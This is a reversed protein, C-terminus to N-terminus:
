GTDYYYDFRTLLEEFGSEKLDRASNINLCQMLYYTLGQRSPKGYRSILEEKKRLLDLVMQHDGKECSILGLYVEM